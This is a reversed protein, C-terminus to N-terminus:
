DNAPMATGCEPCVGSTNGTLDYGCSRCRGALRARRARSRRVLVFPLIGALIFPIWLPIVTEVINCGMTRRPWLVRHWVTQVSAYCPGRGVSFWPSWFGEDVNILYPQPAPSIFTIAGNIIVIGSLNGLSWVIHGVFSYGLLLCTALFFGISTNRIVSGRCV